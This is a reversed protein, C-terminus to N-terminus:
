GLSTCWLGALAELYRKGQDDYVYVGEGRAIVMQETAKLNTTPYIVISM